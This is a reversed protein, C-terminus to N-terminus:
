HLEGDFAEDPRVLADRTLPVFARLGGDDVSFFLRLTQGPKDDWTASIEVQFTTGDPGVVQLHHPQEVLSTLETHSRGAYKMAEASLVGLAEILDM